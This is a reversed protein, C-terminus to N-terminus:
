PEEAPTGPPLTAVIAALRDATAALAAAVEAPAAGPDGFCACGRPSPRSRM